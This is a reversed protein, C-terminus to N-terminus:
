NVGFSYRAGMRPAPFSPFGIQRVKAAICRKFSASGTSISAGAVHGSGLIAMDIQVNGLHGGSRLEQSVCGFLSNLRRNMVGEIDSPRLQREGGGKTADGLEVAQNMADEYSTFGTSREGGGTNSGSSSGGHKVGSRRPTAQLIGATGTIKVRGTELMEALDVDHQAQRREAARRSMLYGGGALVLVALSGGLIVLKAVNSTREVRTSKELATAHDAEAKRLKYQEVFEGFESWKALPKRDGSNMNLLDHTELVHGEVILKVLERTTFPGHDVGDKVAIWRPSDNEFLRATLEAIEAERSKRPAPAPPAPQRAPSGPPAAPRQPKPPPVRPAQALPDAASARQAPAKGPAPPAISLAIDVDIELEVGLELRDPEPTDALLPLLAEAVDGVNRFRAGPDPDLCRAIVADLEAGLDPRLQSLPQWAGEPARGALLAYLLAGVGFVDSSRTAGTGGRVEPALFAQEDEPLLRWTANSALASGLGLDGVKVRGSKTVWVISPRLAAHCTSGHVQALAKCVHAIVNYAGRASLPAGDANRKAILESLTSGQVWESAVFCQSGHTGIGYTGVLSRHKLKAAARIETRIAQFAAPDGALAASLVRVAIPKNTKEDRSLLTECLADSGMGREVVFRGGILTGPAISPGAEATEPVPAPRSM